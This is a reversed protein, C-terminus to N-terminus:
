EQKRYILRNALRRGAKIRVSEFATVAVDPESLLNPWSGRTTGTILMDSMKNKKQGAPTISYRAAYFASLEDSTSNVLKFGCAHIRIRMSFDYGDNDDSWREAIDAVYGKDALRDILAQEFETRCAADAIHALIENERKTDKGNRAGEEITYGILGFFVAGTSTTKARSHLVEFLGEKEIYILVLKGDDATSPSAFLICLVFSCFTHM